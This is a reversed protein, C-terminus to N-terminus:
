DLFAFVGSMMQLQTQPEVARFVQSVPSSTGMPVLTPHSSGEGPTTTARAQGLSGWGKAGWGLWHLKFTQSPMEQTEHGEQFSGNQERSGRGQGLCVM